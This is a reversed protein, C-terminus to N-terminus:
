TEPADVIPRPRDRHEAVGADGLLGRVYPNTDKGARSAGWTYVQGRSDRAMIYGGALDVEVWDNQEDVLEPEAPPEDHSQRIFRTYQDGWAWLDGNSAIGVSYGAGPAVTLWRRKSLKRLQNEKIVYPFVGQRTEEAKLEPSLSGKGNDGFGWLRRDRDPLMVQGRVWGSCYVRQFPVPTALPVVKAEPDLYRRFDQAEFEIRWLKGEADLAWAQFQRGNGDGALCFDTWGRQPLPWALPVGRWKAREERRRERELADEIRANRQALESASDGPKDALTGDANVALCDGLTRLCVGDSFASESWVHLAGDAALGMTMLMVEQAKIWKTAAFLPQYGPADERQAPPLWMPRRLLAGDRTIAYSARVGVSVFRWDALGKDLVVPAEVARGRSGPFGEDGDGGWAHLRHDAKLALAHSWHAALRSEGVEPLPQPRFEPMWEPPEFRADRARLAFTGVIGGACV